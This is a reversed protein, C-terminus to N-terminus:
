SAQAGSLRQWRRRNPRMGFPCFEGMSIWDVPGYHGSDALSVALNSKVSDVAYQASAVGLLNCSKAAHYFCTRDESSELSLNSSEM